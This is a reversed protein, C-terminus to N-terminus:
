LKEAFFVAISKKLKSLRLLDKVLSKTVSVMSQVVQGQRWTIVNASVVILCLLLAGFLHCSKAPLLRLNM